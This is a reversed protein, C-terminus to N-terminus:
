GGRTLEEYLEEQEKQAERSAEKGARIARRIRNRLREMFGRPEPAAALDSHFEPPIEEEPEPSSFLWIAVAAVVVALGVV